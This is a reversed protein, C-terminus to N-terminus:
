AGVAPQESSHRALRPAEIPVDSGVAVGVGVHVVRVVVGLGRLLRHAVHQARASVHVARGEDTLMRLAREVLLEDRQGIDLRAEGLEETHAHPQLVEVRGARQLRDRGGRDAGVVGLGQCPLADGLAGRQELVCLPDVRRRRQRERGGLQARHGHETRVGVEGLLHGAVVAAVRAAADEGVHDVGDGGGAAECHGGGERKGGDRACVGRTDCGGGREGLRGVHGHEHQPGVQAHRALPMVSDVEGEGRALEGQELGGGGGGGGREDHEDETRHREVEGGEELVRLDSGYQVEPLRRHLGRASGVDEEAGDGGCAAGDLRDVRRRVLVVDGDEVEVHPGAGRGPRAGVAGSGGGRARAAGVGAAGM